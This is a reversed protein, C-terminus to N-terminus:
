LAEAVRPAERNFLWFGAVCVVVSILLPVAAGMVGGVLEVTSPAGADIVWIRAQELLPSLPNAAIVSRISDPIADIDLPYLIPTAYFLVRLFLTWAQGVDESRVYAVSLFMSLATTLVILALLVVPLLLWSARPDLGVVLFLLFVGILNSLLSIAASLSVSLPIVIRPFQMKRVMPEKSSISRLATSTTEQFYQFIVLNLILLMPYDKVEGGFRLVQNIVLYIIGFFLFPKLVSWSYGLLTNTYRLRFDTVSTLWLLDWTRRLGGGFASPGRIPRLELTESRSSV